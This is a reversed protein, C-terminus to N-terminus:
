NSSLLGTDYRFYRIDRLMGNMQKQGNYGGLYLSNFENLGTNLIVSKGTMSFRFTNQDLDYFLSFPLHIGTLIPKDSLAAIPFAGENTSLEGNASSVGFVVGGSNITAFVANGSEGFQFIRRQEMLPRDPIQSTNYEIYATASLTGKRPDLYKSLGQMNLSYNDGSWFTRETSQGDNIVWSHFYNIEDQGELGSSFMLGFMYFDVGQINYGLDGNGQVDTSPRFKPEARVNHGLPKNFSIGIRNWGNSLEKIYNAYEQTELGGDDVRNEIVNKNFIDFQTNLFDDPANGIGISFLGSASSGSHVYCSAQWYGRSYSNFFFEGLECEGAANTGTIAFVQNTIGDPGTILAEPIGAVCNQKGMGIPNPCLIFTAEESLIGFDTIRAQNPAAYQVLGAIEYTGSTLRNVSIDSFLQGNILFDQSKRKVFPANTHMINRM